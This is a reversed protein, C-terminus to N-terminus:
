KRIQPVMVSHSLYQQELYVYVCLQTKTNIVNNFSMCRGMFITLNQTMQISFCKLDYILSLNQVQYEM